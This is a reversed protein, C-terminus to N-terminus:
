QWIVIRTPSPRGGSCYIDQYLTCLPQRVIEKRFTRVTGGVRPVDDDLTVFRSSTLGGWGEGARVGESRGEGVGVVFTLGM